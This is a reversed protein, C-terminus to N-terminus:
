RVVQQPHGRAMRSLLRRKSNHEALRRLLDKVFAGGAVPPPIM